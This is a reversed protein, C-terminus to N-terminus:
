PTTREAKNAAEHSDEKIPHFHITSTKALFVAFYTANFNNYCPQKCKALPPYFDFGYNVM